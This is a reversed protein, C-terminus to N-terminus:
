LKVTGALGKFLIGEICLQLACIFCEVLVLKVVLVNSLVIWTAVSALSWTCLKSSSCPTFSLYICTRENWIVAVNADNKKVELVLM